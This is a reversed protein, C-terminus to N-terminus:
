FSRSWKQTSWGSWRWTNPRGSPGSVPFHAARGGGSSSSSIKRFMQQLTADLKSSCRGGGGDAAPGYPVPALPRQDYYNASPGPGYATLIAGMWVSNCHNVFVLFGGRELPIDRSGTCIKRTLCTEATSINWTNILRFWWRYSIAFKWRFWLLRM